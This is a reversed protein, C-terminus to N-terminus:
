DGALELVFKQDEYVTEFDESSLESASERIAILSKELLSDMSCIDDLTYVYAPGVCLRNWFAGPLDLSLCGETLFSWGM